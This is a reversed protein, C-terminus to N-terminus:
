AGAALAANILSARLGGRELEVLGRITRGAPTTVQHKLAGPHESSELMLQAAGLMTQAVLERASEYPIGLAIAGDILAEMVVFAYAPGCGSIATVADMKSEDLVATRGLASFLSATVNLARECTDPTRALVTMASGVSAPTNPMVRVVRARDESWSRLRDTGVSAAASVLVHERSLAPAISTLVSEVDHPKVCLVVVDSREVLAGNGYATESTTGLIEGVETHAQLGRAIAGGLTGLGIIGVRM